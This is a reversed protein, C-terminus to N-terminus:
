REERRQPEFGFSLTIRTIRRDFIGSLPAGNFRSKRKNLQSALFLNEKVVWVEEGILNMRHIVCEFLFDM